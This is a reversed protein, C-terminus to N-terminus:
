WDSKKSTIEDSLIYEKLSKNLDNFYVPLTEPYFKYRGRIEGKKNFYVDMKTFDETFWGGASYQSPAYYAQIEVIDFKYKGDKFHIEIQYKTDHCIKGLVNICSLNDSVGEIRIYDYEIQAKIVEKPNNYTKSVWDLTKKYIENAMKDKCEVVVYDTFGDKTFKFETEQGICIGSILLGIYFIKRM